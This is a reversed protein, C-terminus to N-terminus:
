GDLERSTSGRRLNDVICPEISIRPHNHNRCSSTAPGIMLCFFAEECCCPPSATESTTMVVLPALSFLWEDRFADHCRGDGRGNLLVEERKKARKTTRKKFMRYNIINGRLELCCHTRRKENKKFEIKKTQTAIYCERRKGIKEKMRRERRYIWLGWVHGCLSVKFSRPM